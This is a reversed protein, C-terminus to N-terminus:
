GTILKKLSHNEVKNILTTLLGHGPISINGAIEALPIIVFDREHMGPHPVKLEDTDIVKKGYMLLDLDLIRPGWKEGDRERGQLEEIRQLRQLLDAPSLLTDLAVVANVFDPQDQPGMPKCSYLSSCAEMITDPLVELEEIAEKVQAVPDNLNSGIGVYVRITM